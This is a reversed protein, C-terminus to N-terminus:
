MRLGQAIAIREADPFVKSNGTISRERMIGIM